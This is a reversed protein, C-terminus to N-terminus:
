VDPSLIMNLLIQNEKTFDATRYRVSDMICEGKVTMRVKRKCANAYEADCVFRVLSIGYFLVRTWYEIYFVKGKTFNRKM